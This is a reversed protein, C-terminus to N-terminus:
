EKAAGEAAPAAEGEAEGLLTRLEETHRDDMKRMATRHNDSAERREIEHRDALEKRKAVMPNEAKEGEGEKKGGGEAPKKEGGESEAPKKKEPKDYLKSVKSKKEPEDAM